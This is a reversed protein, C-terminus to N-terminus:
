KLENETDKKSKPLIRLGNYGALYGLTVAIIAFFPTVLFVFPNDLLELSRGLGLYYGQLGLSGIRGIGELTVSVDSTGFVFLRLVAFIFNPANAILAMYLPKYFNKKERGADVKVRDKAAIDWMMTYILFFYLCVGLLSSAINLGTSATTAIATVLGFITMAMQNLFLKVISYKTSQFFTM